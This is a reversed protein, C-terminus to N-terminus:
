LRSFSLWGVRIRDKGKLGMIACKQSSIVGVGFMKTIGAHYTKAIGVQDAGENGILNYILCAENCAPQPCEACCDSDLANSAGSVLSQAFCLPQFVVITIHVPEKGEGDGVMDVWADMIM